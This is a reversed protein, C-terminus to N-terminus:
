KKEYLDYVYTGRYLSDLSNINKIETEPIDFIKYQKDVCDLILFVTDKNYRYETQINADIIAFIEDISQVPLKTYSEKKEIMRNEVIRYLMGEISRSLLYLSCLMKEFHIDKLISFSSVKNVIDFIAKRFESVAETHLGTEYDGRLERAKNIIQKFIFLNYYDSAIEKEIKVWERIFIEFAKNLSTEDQKELPLIILSQLIDLCINEYDRFIKSTHFVKDLEDAVYDIAAKETETDWGSKMDINLKGFINHVINRLKRSRSSPKERKLEYSVTTLFLKPDAVWDFRDSMFGIETFALSTWLPNDDMYDNYAFGFDIIVPYYGFSPVCFQTENDLKYLFVLDENCKKIMINDSHLDYHTFRTEMQAIQTALLVQKITSYIMNDDVRSSCIYNSFKSSKDIYECLLVEKEIPYKSKIKFPNKARLDPEIQCDIAGIGKCFHPCFEYLSNLGQMITLEHLALYNLTQSMKFVYQLKGDKSNLLGVEGQKGPKDFKTEFDLWENWPKERNNEYYDVLENFKTDLM